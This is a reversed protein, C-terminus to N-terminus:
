LVIMQFLVPRSFNYRDSFLYLSLSEAVIEDFPNVQKTFYQTDIDPSAYNWAYPVRNFM